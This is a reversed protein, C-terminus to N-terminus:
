NWFSYGEGIMRLKYAEELPGGLAYFKQFAISFMNAVNRCLGMHDFLYTLTDFSRQLYTAQTLM